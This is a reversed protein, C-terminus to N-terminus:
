QTEAFVLLHQRVTVVAARCRHITDAGVPDGSALLLKLEREVVLCAESVADFGYTGGLGALAHFHRYLQELLDREGAALAELLSSIENLRVTTREAFRRRMEEFSM